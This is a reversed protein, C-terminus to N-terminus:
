VLSEQCLARKCPEKSHVLARKCPAESMGAKKGTRRWHARLVVGLDMGKRDWLEGYSYRTPLGGAQALKVAEVVGNSSLQGAVKSREFLLPRKYDNPKLCRVFHMHTSELTPILGLSRKGRWGGAAEVSSDSLSRSLSFCVSVSVSVSVFVCPYVSVYACPYVSVSLSESVSVSLPFVFVSLSGSGSVFQSLYIRLYRCVSVTVSVSVSFCVSVSVSVSVSVYVSVSVPVPVCVAGPLRRSLISYSSRLCGLRRVCGRGRRLGM